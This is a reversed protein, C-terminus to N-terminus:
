DARYELLAKRHRCRFIKPNRVSKGIAATQNLVDAVIRKPTLKKALQSMLNPAPIQKQIKKELTRNNIINAKCKTGQRMVGGVDARMGVDVPAHGQRIRFQASLVPFRHGVLLTRLCVNPNLESKVHYLYGLVAVGRITVMIEDTKFNGLLHQLPCHK